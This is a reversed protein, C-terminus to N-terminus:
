TEAYELDEVGSFFCLEVENGAKKEQCSRIQDMCRVLDFRSRIMTCDHTNVM